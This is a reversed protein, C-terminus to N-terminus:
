FDVHKELNSQQDTFIKYAGGGEMVAYEGYIFYELKGAADIFWSGADKNKINDSEYYRPVGSISMMWSQLLSYDNGPLFKIKDLKEAAEDTKKRVMRIYDRISCYRMRMANYTYYDEPITQALVECEAALIDCILFGIREFASVHEQLKSRASKYQYERLADGDEDRIEVAKEFDTNMQNILLDMDNLADPYADRNVKWFAYVDAGNTKTWRCLPKGNEDYIKEGSGNQESFYGCFLFGRREPVAVFPLEEGFAASVSDIKKTNNDSSSFMTICYTNASWKAYVTIDEAYTGADWGNVFVEAGNQLLYWGDFTCGNGAIDAAKPLSFNETISYSLPVAYGNVFNESLDSGDENKYSVSYRKNVADKMDYVAHTECGASIYVLVPYFNLVKESASGAFLTFCMYYKGEPVADHTYTVTIIGSGDDAASATIDALPMRNADALRTGAPDEYLAATVSAVGSDAPYKLGIRVNGTGSSVPQLNFELVRTAANLEKALAAIYIEKGNKQATLLFDWEGPVISVVLSIIKHYASSKTDTTVTEFISNGAKNKGSLIFDTIGDLDPESPLATRNTESVAAGAVSIRIQLPNDNQINEPNVLNNCSFINLLVLCVAFCQICSPFLRVSQNKRIICVKKIKM